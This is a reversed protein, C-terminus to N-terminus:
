AFRKPADIAWGPLTHLRGIVEHLVEDRKCFAFRVLHTPPDPDDHFASVPIAAVRVQEIMRRCFAVDDCNFGLPRIDAIM